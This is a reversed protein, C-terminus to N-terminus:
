SVYVFENAAFAVHCLLAWARKRDTSDSQFRAVAALSREVERATPPRGYATEYLQKPNGAPAGPPAVAAVTDQTAGPPPLKGM